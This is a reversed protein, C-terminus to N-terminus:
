YGVIELFWDWWGQKKRIKLIERKKLTGKEQWIPVTYGHKTLVTVWKELYCDQATFGAMYVPYKKNNKMAFLHKNAVNMNTIDVYDQFYTNLYENNEDLM